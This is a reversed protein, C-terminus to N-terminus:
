AHYKKGILQLSMTLAIVYGWHYVFHIKLMKDNLPLTLYINYIYLSVGGLFHNMYVVDRCEGSIAQYSLPSLPITSPEVKMKSGDIDLSM